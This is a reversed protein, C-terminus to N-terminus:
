DVGSSLHRLKEGAPDYHHISYYVPLGDQQLAAKPPAMQHLVICKHLVGALALRSEVCDTLFVFNHKADFTTAQLLAESTDLVQDLYLLKALLATTM